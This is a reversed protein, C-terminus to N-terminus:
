EGKLHSNFVDENYCACGAIKCAKEYKEYTNLEKNRLKLAVQNNEWYYDPNAMSTHYRLLKTM